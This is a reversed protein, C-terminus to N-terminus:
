SGLIAKIYDQTEQPANALGSKAVNGPGWNYAALALRPDRFKNLQQGMYNIGGAISQDVDFPDIGLDQATGPMHQFVGAAGKKSVAYPNFGSEQKAQRVFMDAYQGYGQKEAEARIKQEIEVPNYSLDLAPRSGSQEPSELVPNTEDPQTLDLAPRGGAAAPSVVNSPAAEGAGFAIRTGAALTETAPTLISKELKDLTKLSNPSTIVERLLGKTEPRMLLSLTQEDTLGGSLFNGIRGMLNVAKAPGYGLSVAAASSLADIAGTNLPTGGEAQKGYRQQYKFFNEADKMRSSFDDINTGVAFAMAEKSKEDLTNFKNALLKLDVGTSGDALTTRASQVFDDYMVQRVRKLDEPATNNLIGAMKDRQANTLGKITTLLEDTDIQNISKNKLIDPLGNAAFDDYARYAKEVDKRASMLLGSIERIRPVTSDLRTAQLDDKLGGFIATAIKKQSSLSVDKILQEGQKAQSGFESLLAQMKEVSIRNGALDDYMRGLFRAAAQADDTGKDTFEKILNKINSTTKDTMLIDNNGGMEKAAEFRSKGVETIKQQLKKAEGDIAQFIASGAQEKPYGPRTEVRAGATAVETAKKELATFLEAYKPDQRLAAVKGAVLPDSASQGQLMFSKLANADEDPLQGMLKNIQRSKLVNRVGQAGGYALTTIALLSQAVPNGNLAAEDLTSAGVNAAMLKPGLGVSSGLGRAAGFLLAQEQSPAQLGPTILDGIAETKSGTLLNKGAIFLDPVATVLGTVGKALGGGITGVNGLMMLENQIGGIEAKLKNAREVDAPKTSDYISRLERSKAQLQNSLAKGAEVNTSYKAM